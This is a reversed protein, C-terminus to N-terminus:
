TKNNSSHNQSPKTKVLHTTKHQWNRTPKLFYGNEHSNKRQRYENHDYIEMQKILYQRHQLYANRQFVYPDLAAAALVNEYSLLNSRLNLYYLALVPYQKWSPRIYAYVSLAYYDVFMGLTDSPTSSGYFPLVLYPQKTVGWRAMSLGFDNYHYPISVHMHAALDFIGGLGLTSNIAFRWSDALAHGLDGQLLDNAIITPEDLNNYIHTIALRVQPFVMYQYTKAIPKFMHKDLQENFQFVPQNYAEYPDQPNTPKHTSACASLLTFSLVSIIIGIKTIIKHQM